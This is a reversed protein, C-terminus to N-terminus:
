YLVIVESNKRNCNFNEPSGTATLTPSGFVSLFSYTHSWSTQNAASVFNGAVAPYAPSDLCRIRNSEKGGGRDQHGKNEEGIADYTHQDQTIHM